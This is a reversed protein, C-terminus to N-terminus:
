AELSFLLTMRSSWEGSGSKGPFFFGERTERQTAIGKIAIRKAQTPKTPSERSEVGAASALLAAAACTGVDMRKLGEKVGVGVMVGVGVFVGSGVEVGVTVGIGVSVEM